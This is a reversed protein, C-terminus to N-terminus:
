VTAMNVHVHGFMELGMLAVQSVFPLNRAIFEALQPLRRYTAGHIVVRLEIAVGSEALHYLGEVTEDYAGQAQVVFDHEADVDSYLPIGLMLDPHAMGGLRNALRQDRFLRGNTLVHVATNPLNQKAREIMEFFVDG